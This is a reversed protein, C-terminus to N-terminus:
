RSAGSCWPWRMIVSGPARSRDSAPDAAQVLQVRQGARCDPLYWTEDGGLEEGPGAQVDQHRAGPERRRQGGRRRRIEQELRGSGAREAVQRVDDAVPLGGDRLGRGVAGPEPGVAFTVWLRGPGEADGPANVRVCM